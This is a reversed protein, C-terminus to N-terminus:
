AKKIIGQSVLVSVIDAALKEPEGTLMTQKSSKAALGGSMVMKLREAATLKTDIVLGKKVRRVPPSFSVTSVLPVSQVVNEFEPSSIDITRIEKKLAALSDPLSPYPPECDGAEVTLLCPLPCGLVQRDGKELKRHVILGQRGSERMIKTVDSVHPIGLMEAIYPGPLGTMGSADVSEGGCLILDYIINRTVQALVAALKFTDYNELHSEVIHVANDGGLSLYERIISAAQPPGISILTIKGTKDHERISVAAEVASTDYSNTTFLIDDPDIRNLARDFQIEMETAPAQGVIVLIDM